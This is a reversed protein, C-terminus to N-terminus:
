HIPSILAKLMPTAQITYLGRTRKEGRPREAVSCLSTQIFCKFVVRSLLEVYEDFEYTRFFLPFLKFIELAISRVLVPRDSLHLLIWLLMNLSMYGLTEDEFEELARDELFGFLGEEEVEQLYRDQTYGHFREILEEPEQLLFRSSDYLDDGFGKRQSGPPVPWGDLEYQKEEEPVNYSYKAMTKHLQAIFEEVLEVDVGAKHAEKEIEFQKGSNLAEIYKAMVKNLAAIEKKDAPEVEKEDGALKFPDWPMPYDQELNMVLPVSLRYLPETDPHGVIRCLLSFADAAFAFILWHQKLQFIRFNLLEPHELLDSPGYKEVMDEDAEELIYQTAGDKSQISWFPSQFDYSLEDVYAMHILMEKGQTTISPIFSLYDWYYLAQPYEKLVGDLGDKAYLDADFMRCTFVIDDAQLSNYHILGACQLCLGNDLMLTVYTVNRSERREQLMELSPSCFLYHTDTLLDAIEFLEPKKREVIRFALFFGPNLTWHSLVQRTQPPLVTNNNQLIRRLQDANGMTQSIIYQDLISYRYEKNDPEKEMLFSVLADVDLKSAYDEFMSVIVEYQTDYLDCRSEWDQPINM